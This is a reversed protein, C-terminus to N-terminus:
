VNFNELTKHDTYVFFHTGLLDARWKRLARIIVLLEKEYVPYNKEVSKLQVSDFTVPRVEEWSPGFSLTAGTRWDSVDCTIFIKNSGPTVHAITTLYGAGLILNKIRNFALQHDAAWAPFLKNADKLTLPTLCTTWEALRPLFVSIYRVLGLFAWVDTASKLMPWDRIHDIKSANAEIGRSSIHHELFDIERLFFECKSANCFLKASWLSWIMTNVHQVHQAISASWIIINDLYIHCIKGIHDRLASAMQRQHISPSNKLGMPMAVWKFLGRPTTVATLHMDDPHVQTQFFSNTMDM